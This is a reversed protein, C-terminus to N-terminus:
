MLERMAFTSLFPLQSLDHPSGPLSGPCNLVGCLMATSARPVVHIHGVAAVAADLHEIAFSFEQPLDHDVDKQGSREGRSRCCALVVSLPFWAIAGPAGQAIQM